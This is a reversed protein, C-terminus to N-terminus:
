SNVNMYFDKKVNLHAQFKVLEKRPARFSLNGRVGRGNCLDLVM